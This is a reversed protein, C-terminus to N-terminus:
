DECHDRARGSPVRGCAYCDEGWVALDLCQSCLHTESQTDDVYNARCHRCIPKTQPADDDHYRDYVQTLTM